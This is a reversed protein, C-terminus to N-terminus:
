TSLLLIINGAVVTDSDNGKVSCVLNVEELADRAEGETKGVVDPVIVTTKGSSIYVNVSTGEAVEEGAEPNQSIVDDVEISDSSASISNMSLGKSDLLKKAEDKNKGTVNPVLIKAGNSVTLLVSTGRKVSTNSEISQVCIIGKEYTDSYDQTIEDINLGATEAMKKADDESLGVFEPVKIYNYSYWCYGGIVIAMMAVFPLIRRWNMNKKSKNAPKEASGGKVKGLDNEYSKIDERNNSAYKENGTNGAGEGENEIKETVVESSSDAVGLLETVEETTDNTIENEIKETENDIAETVSNDKKEIQGTKPNLTDIDGAILSNRHQEKFGKLEKYLEDATSYRDKPDFACAKLIIHSLEKSANCPPEMKAGRMRLSLAKAEDSHRRPETIPPYFPSRMNNFLQYLLIGLSYIDVSMNYPMGRYVEPAMYPITGVSTMGAVTKELQRAIGFDGLKYDGQVSRFINAPKIDRHIINNNECIELARCLDMGIKIGDEARLEENALIDNLKTLYEMRIFIFWGIEDEKEVIAHDQYSVINSIGQLKYMLKVEKVVDKVMDYFYEAIQKDTQGQSRLSAVEDNNISQPIELVKLASVQNEGYLEREIRFVKGYSGAGIVESIKWEPWIDTLKKEINDM